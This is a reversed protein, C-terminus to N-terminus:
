KRRLGFFVLGNWHTGTIHRAIASLSKYTIGQYEFGQALVKVKHSVGQYERVLVAGQPPRNNDHTIPAGSAVQERLKSIRRRTEPKIDGYALVQIRHALRSIMYVHNKSPPEGGILKKWKEILEIGTMRKLAAIEELANAQM